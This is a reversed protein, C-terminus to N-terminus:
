RRSGMGGHPAEGMGGPRGMGGPSGMGGSGLTIVKSSLTVTAAETGGSYNGDTFIGDKGKGQCNGEFSIVCTDESSFEPSSVLLYSYTTKPSISLSYNDSTINCFTEATLTGNLYMVITEQASMSSISEAMQSSGAAVVTGGNVACEGQFDLPSNGGSEPGYVITTGGSFTLNGNSDIGDGQAEVYVYGDTINIACSTNGGFSDPRGYGMNSQDNGGASNMGDDFSVIRIEGGSIEIEEGEVGEYSYLINLNGESIITKKDAHVGDDGTKITFDGGSITLNENSHLADDESDILFTGGSIEADSASKVAKRSVDSSTDQTSESYWNRGMMDGQPMDANESGGGTVIDFTGGTIRLTNDSTIADGRSNIKIDSGEILLLGLTPDEENTTKLADGETTLNLTGSSIRLGDKAKIGSDSSVVTLSAESFVLTDKTHIACDYNSEIFLGGKGGIILDNKCFLTADPDGSEDTTYNGTDSLSNETGEKLVIYTNKADEVFIASSNESHIEANDLLLWVDQKDANIHVQGQLKGSLHYYGGQNVTLGKDTFSAGNASSKEDLNIKAELSTDFSKELNSMGSSGESFIESQSTTDVPVSTESIETELEEQTKLGCGSFFATILILILLISLFTINRKKM